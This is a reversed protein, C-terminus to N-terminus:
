ILRHKRTLRWGLPKSGIELVIKLDKKRRPLFKNPLDLPIVIPFVLIM